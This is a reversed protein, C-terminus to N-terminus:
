ARRRRAAREKLRRASALLALVIADALGVGGGGGSGGTPSGNRNVVRVNAHGEHVSAEFANLAADFNATMRTGAADFSRAGAVRADHQEEVM